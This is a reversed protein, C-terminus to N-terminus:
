ELIGDLHDVLRTLLSGLAQNYGAVLADPTQDDLAIEEQMETHFVVENRKAADLVFVQLGAVATPTKAEFDGYLKTILVELVYGYGAGGVTQTVYPFAGSAALWDRVASTALQEPPALFQHYYDATFETPATRFTLSRSDFPPSVRVRRLALGQPTIPAAREAPLAPEFVFFRKQPPEQQLGQVCGLPLVLVLALILFRRM